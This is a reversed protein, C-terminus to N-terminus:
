VHKNPMKWHPFLSELKNASSIIHEFLALGFWMLTSRRTTPITQVAILYLLQRFSESVKRSAFASTIINHSISSGHHARSHVLNMKWIFRSTSTNVGAICHEDWSVTYLQQQESSQVEPYVRVLLVGDQVKSLTSEM